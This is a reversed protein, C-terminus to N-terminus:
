VSRAPWRTLPVSMSSFTTARVKARLTFIQAPYFKEFSQRGKGTKWGAPPQCDSPAAEGQALTFRDFVQLIKVLLFSAENYAFSM